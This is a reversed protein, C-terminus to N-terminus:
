ERPLLAPLEALLADRARLGAPGQIAADDKILRVFVIRHGSKEAWGVFWGFQRNPDNVGDAGPQFGTGTKGHATWGNALPFVPIIALTADHAAWSVPLHYTLLKRLFVTQEEPSIQLSSSLWANTLGNNKGSDGSLNRDGYAFANVYRTFREAGLARTLVQSYWVVSDRQWSTPDTEKKWVDLWAQYADLYPRAPAHADQLLGADYGMVSLAIKFTSAPSNRSACDGQKVLITESNTEALVTCVGGASAPGRFLLVGACFAVVFYRM